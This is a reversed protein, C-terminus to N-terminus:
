ACTGHGTRQSTSSTRRPVSSIPVARTSRSSSPTVSLRCGSPPAPRTSPPISHAASTGAPLGGLARQLMRGPAGGSLPARTPSPLTFESPILGPFVSFTAWPVEELEAAIPTALVTPHSVLLDAGAVATRLADVWAPLNPFVVTRFLHLFGAYGGLRGDLIAPNAAFEEPGFRPGVPVFRVGEAEVLERYAPTTALSVNHGRAAAAKAIALSPFLDGWSGMTTVVLRAM